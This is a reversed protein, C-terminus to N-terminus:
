NRSIHLNHNGMLGQPLAGCLAIWIRLQHQNGIEQSRRLIARQNLFQLLAVTLHAVTLQTITLQTITLHTFAPQAITLHAAASQIISLHVVALHCKLSLLIFLLQFYLYFGNYQYSSHATPIVTKIRQYVHNIILTYQNHM